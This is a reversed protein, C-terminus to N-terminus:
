NWTSLVHLAKKIESEDKIIFKLSSQLREYIVDLLISKECYKVAICANYIKKYLDLFDNINLVGTKKKILDPKWPFLLMLCEKKSISLNLYDKYSPQIFRVFNYLNLERKSGLNNLDARRRFFITPTNINAIKNKQSIDLLLKWDSGTALSCDHRIGNSFVKSRLVVTPNVMTNILLLSAKIYDPDLIRNLSYSKKGGIVNASTGIVDIEPNREFSDLQIKIRKYVSVDDSDMFVIYEGKSNNIAINRSEAVGKNNKNNIVKVRKDKQNYEAIINKTYKDTSGDDVLILELNKYTQRLISEIAIRLFGSRNYICIMVSVKPSLKSNKSFHSNNVLSFNGIKKYTLIEKTFNSKLNFTINKKTQELLYSKKFLIAFKFAFFTNLFKECVGQIFKPLSFFLGFFGVSSGVWDVFKNEELFEIQKTIRSPYFLVGVDLIGVYLGKSNKLGKRISKDRGFKKKNRIIIIRDDYKTKEKLVNSVGLDLSDDLIIIELNLYTQDQISFLTEEISLDKSGIYIIISVLSEEM